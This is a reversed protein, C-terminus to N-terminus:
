RKAIKELTERQKESFYMYEGHKEFKENIDAVFTQEWDTSAQAEAEALLETFDDIDDFIEKLMM